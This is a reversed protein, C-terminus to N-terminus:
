RRCGRAAAEHWWRDLDGDIGGEGRIGDVFSPLRRIVDAMGGQLQAFERLGPIGRSRFISAAVLGRTAYLAITSEHGGPAGGGLFEYLTMKPYRQQYDRLRNCLDGLPLGESGGLWVAVGESFLANRSHVAPEVVAHVFEHLYAEGISPNGLLLIGAGGGRGGLGTGPGSEEVFYDLGVLKLGQEMTGTVYADLQKPPTIQFLRAVSDVFRAAEKTKRVNARQSPAYHFVIRGARVVPWDKTLRPLPSSFKWENPAGPSRIAYLRQLALPTIRTRSSDAAAHLIKVVFVSDGGGIGTVGLITASFGQYAEMALDGHQADFPSQTSWLGRARATSDPHALYARTLRVIQGVEAVTTDVGWSLSVSPAPTQGRAVGALLSVCVIAPAVLSRCDRFRRLAQRGAIFLGSM